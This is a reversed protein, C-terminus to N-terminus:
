RLIVIQPVRNLVQQFHANRKKQWTTSGNFVYPAKCSLIHVHVYSCEFTKLASYNRYTDSLEPGTRGAAVIYICSVQKM